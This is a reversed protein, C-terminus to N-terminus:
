TQQTPERRESRIASTSTPQPRTATAVARAIHHPVGLDRDRKAALASM